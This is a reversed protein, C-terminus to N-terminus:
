VETGPSKNMWEARDVHEQEDTKRTLRKGPVM